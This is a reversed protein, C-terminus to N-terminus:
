FIKLVKALWYIPFWGVIADSFYELITFVAFVVWYTLWKTDDDKQKTEIAKMSCYGPYAFGIINSVLQQGVGVVLYLALFVMSGSHFFVHLRILGKELDLLKSVASLFDLCSYDYVHM